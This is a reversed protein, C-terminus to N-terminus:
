GKEETQILGARQLQSLMGERINLFPADIISDRAIFILNTGGKIAPILPTIAERMRRKVRNRAVANGIKKSVSFGIKASTSRSKAYVLAVYKGGCSKGVRYTYRFEKKRRLSDSHKVSGCGKLFDDTRCAKKGSKRRCLGLQFGFLVSGKPCVCKGRFVFM